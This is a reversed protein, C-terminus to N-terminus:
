KNLEKDLNNRLASIKATKAADPYKKQMISLMLDLNTLDKRYHYMRASYYLAEKDLDNLMDFERVEDFYLLASPYDSMKYYAYGNHFKKEILKMKCKDVYEKAAFFKDHFPYRNMFEAFRDMASFTEDQDYHAALSLKYYCVGIQFFADGALQHDSFQRIFDEYEFRADIYEHRYFFCDALRLQAEAMYITSSENVIKQYYPIAKKYKEAAFHADAITKAEEPSMKQLYDTSSCGAIIIILLGASILLSIYKHM